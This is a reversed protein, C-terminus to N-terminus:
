RTRPRGRTRKATTAPAPQDAAPTDTATGPVLREALLANLSARPILRRSGVQTYALRGEAMLKYLTSRLIGSYAEADRIVMAGGEVLEATSM